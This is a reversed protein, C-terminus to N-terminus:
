KKDNKRSLEKRLELRQARAEQRKKRRNSRQDLEDKYSARAINVFGKSIVDDISMFVTSDSEEAVGQVDPLGDNSEEGLLKSHVVNGVTFPDYCNKTKLEDYEEQTIFGNDLLFKQGDNENVDVITKFESASQLDLAKLETNLNEIEKKNDKRLGAKSLVGNVLDKVDDMQHLDNDTVENKADAKKKLYFALGAGLAAGILLNTIQKNKDSM